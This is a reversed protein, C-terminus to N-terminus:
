HAQDGKPVAEPKEVKKELRHELPTFPPCPPHRRLAELTVDPRLVPRLGLALLTYFFGRESVDKRPILVADVGNKALWEAVRVGRRREESAYPNSLLDESKLTPTPKCTIELILFAPACGFHTSIKQGKQDVPIALKYREVHPPEVHIIVRDIEPFLDYIEEEILTVIEHAEELSPVDLVIEAEVFRFRGSRRGILNKIEVVEPFTRMLDAIRTMTEPELGADLLVKLSEIAIDFGIKGILGAIFVAALRDALPLHFAGGILGALIVGTALLETTMHQADAALSPSGSIRALKLEWHSFLWTALAMLFLGVAALPVRSPIIISEGRFAQSLIEYAALFIFGATVLAVLNELKYLGYPFTKTKRDAFKLGVFVSLSGVVDTLSHIADACLALSGTYRGLLYKSGALFLNFLAAFLAVRALLSGTQRPDITKAGLADEVAMGNSWATSGSEDKQNPFEWMKPM